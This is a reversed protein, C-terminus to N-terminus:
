RYEITGGLAKDIQSYLNAESGRNDLVTMYHPWLLHELDTYHYHGPIHIEAMQRAFKIFRTREEEQEASLTVENLFDQTVFSESGMTRAFHDLQSYFKKLNSPLNRYVGLHLAGHRRLLTLESLFRCDTVVVPTEIVLMQKITALVWIDIHFKERMIDTAYYQLVWRPTIDVGMDLNDTWWVDVIDRFERSEETDGELLHRPWGFIASVCDKLADGFSLETYGYTSVLYKAVTSKGAGINGSLTIIM